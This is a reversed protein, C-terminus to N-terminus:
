KIEMNELICKEDVSVVVNRTGNIENLCILFRNGFSKIIRGYTDVEYVFGGHDVEGQVRVYNGIEYNITM